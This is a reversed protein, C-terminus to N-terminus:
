NESEEDSERDNVQSNQYSQFFLGVELDIIGKENPNIQKVIVPYYKMKEALTRLTAHVEYGDNMYLVVRNSDTKKPSHIIESIANRIERDMKLLQQATMKLRNEDQFNVLVPGTLEQLNGVNTKVIEGNELLPYFQNKDKVIAVKKFEKLHIEIKNPFKVRINVTKIVPLRYIKEKIEKKNLAWIMNNTSLGSAKIVQHKDISENGRVTIQGVRSLPSQFYAFCFLFLFFIVVLKIIRRNTKRKRQEKLKPIRDEISVVKGAM